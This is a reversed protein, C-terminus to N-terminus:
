ADVEDQLQLITYPVCEKYRKEMLGAVCPVIGTKNWNEERLNAIHMSM